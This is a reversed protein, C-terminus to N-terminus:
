KLECQDLTVLLNGTFLDEEAGVVRGKLTIVDGEALDVKKESASIQCLIGAELMISTASEVSSISGDLVVAQNIYESVFASEDAQALAYFDSAQGTFKADAEQYDTHPKNHLYAAVAIVIFVAAGGVVLIIKTKM